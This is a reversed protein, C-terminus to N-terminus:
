FSYNLLTIDRRYVDAVIRKMRESFMTRYAGAGSKRLHPLQRELRMHSRIEEFGEELSEFRFIKIAQPQKTIIPDLWDLQGRFHDYRQVYRRFSLDELKGVFAEFSVCDALVSSAWRHDRHANSGVVRRFYSFGSYLRDWPNRVFSFVYYRSLIDPHYALFRRLPRHGVHRGFLANGVSSGATKPIHLFVSRTRSFEDLLPDGAPWLKAAVQWPFKADFQAHKIAM